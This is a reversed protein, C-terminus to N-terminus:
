LMRARTSSASRSGDDHLLDVSLRSAMLVINTLRWAMSCVCDCPVIADIADHAAWARVTRNWVASM